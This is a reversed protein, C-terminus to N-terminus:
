LTVKELIYDWERHIMSALCGSSCFWRIEGTPLIDSEWFSRNQNRLLYAWTLYGSEHFLDPDTLYCKSGEPYLSVLGYPQISGCYICFVGTSFPYKDVTVKKIEKELQEVNM